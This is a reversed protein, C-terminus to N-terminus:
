AEFVVLHSISPISEGQQTSVPSLLAGTAAFVVKHWLGRRMGNLIHGTILSASCGCGSGGAHVDQAKADYLMVGCDNYGAALDIGDDAFLKRLINSGLIGLDGTLILDYDTPRTSTDNFFATLTDYAAPAMAAGMNNADKIGMDIIRGCTHATLRVGSGQSSLVAAGAATATWQATPTRQGGYALPQRYQREASCFHSSTIAAAYDAFGGDVHAAALALSEAMTSCAGYLGYFPLSFSRVNFSTGICQNLLDGGFVAQIQDDNLGSKNIALTLALRQMESEAKEWSKQGFFSDESVIDFSSAMPGQGEKKGVANASGIIYVPTPFLVTRKGLRKTSM